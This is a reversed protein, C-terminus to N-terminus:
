SLLAALPLARSSVALALGALAGPRSLPARALGRIVSSRAALTGPALPPLALTAVLWALLGLAAPLLSLAALALRAPRLPLLAALAAPLPKVRRADQAAQWFLGARLGFFKEIATARLFEAVFLALLEALDHLGGHAAPAM